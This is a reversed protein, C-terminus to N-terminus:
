NILKKRTHLYLAALLIVIGFFIGFWYVKTFKNAWGVFYTGAIGIFNILAMYATFQSGQIKERCMNMLLPFAAVSILPDVFNWLVLSSSTFVKNTWYFHCSCILILYLGFCLMVVKLLRFSGIYDSLVGGVVIVILTLSSGWTGQLVSVEKDPWNMYHIIYYTYGGIFFSIIFYIVLIIIFLLLNDSATISKYLEHFLYRLSPNIEAMNNKKLRRTTSNGFKPLLPDDKDFRQLFTVITFFLLILTQFLVASRFGYSHMVSSLAAAGFAYGVLFGGRMFANVKGREHKPSVEIAIADASADQVSAFISHTFLVFTLLSLQTVPNNVCLLLLSALCAIVQTLVLWHKRHGIVSYQYRDIVPGWLVQFIWPIGVIAAFTGIVQPQVNSSVFYNYLATTAFGAPIGQMIYLYFFTFYRINRSDNLAPLIM